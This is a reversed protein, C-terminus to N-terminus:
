TCSLGRYLMATPIGSIIGRHIVWSWDPPPANRLRFVFHNTDSRTVDKQFVAIQVKQFAGPSWSAACPIQVRIQITSLLPDAQTLFPDDLMPIDVGFAILQVIM